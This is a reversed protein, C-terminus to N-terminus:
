IKTARNGDILREILMAIIRKNIEEKAKLYEQFEEMTFLATVTGIFEKQLAKDIKIRHDIYTALGKEDMKDLKAKVTLPDSGFRVLLLDNQFKLIPRLVINQFKEMNTKEGNDM